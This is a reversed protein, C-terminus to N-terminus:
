SRGRQGRLRVYQFSQPPRIGMAEVPCFPREYRRVAGIEIAHGIHMGSFYEFFLNRDIGAFRRTLRWLSEVPASLIQLVDFEGVVLQVPSTAYVLALNVSSGFPQRRFEFRKRGSLIAEAYRPRISLLARTPELSNSLRKSNLM